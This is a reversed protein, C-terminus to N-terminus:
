NKFEGLAKRWSLSGARLYNYYYLPMDWDIATIHPYITKAFQLDEAIKILPFRYPGREIAERRWAKNWVAPWKLGGKAYGCNNAIFSFTLVDQKLDVLVRHLMSFVYNHLWWDDDDIFLIWEGTAHDLGVNRAGGACQVNIEYVQDTYQRAIEATNDTCNDAVVFVTYLDSPYDQKNISDLLNGIVASENRAAICIGYKHQKKAPKFKRTFFMGIVFYFAKHAVMVTLITGIIDYVKKSTLYSQGIASIIKSIVEM